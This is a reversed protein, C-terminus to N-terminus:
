STKKANGINKVMADLMDIYEERTLKEEADEAILFWFVSGRNLVPYLMIAEGEPDDKLKDWEISYTQMKRLEAIFELANTYIEYIENIHPDILPTIIMLEKELAHLTIEITNNMKEIKNIYLEKKGIIAFRRFKTSIANSWEDRDKDNSDLKSSQWCKGFRYYFRISSNSRAGFAVLFDNSIQLLRAQIFGKTNNWERQKQEIERAKIYRDVWISVPGGAILLVALNTLIGMAASGDPLPFKSSFVVGLWLLLKEVCPGVSKSNLCLIALFLGFLFLSASIINHKSLIGSLKTKQKSKESALKSKSKKSAM